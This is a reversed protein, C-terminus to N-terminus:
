KILLLHLDSVQKELTAIRSYLEKIENEDEFCVYKVWKRIFYTLLVKDVLYNWSDWQKIDSMNIMFNHTILYLCGILLINLM